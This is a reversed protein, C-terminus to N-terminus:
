NVAILFSELNNLPGADRIVPVTSRYSVDRVITEGHIEMPGVIRSNDVIVDSRVNVGNLLISGNKVKAGAFVHCGPGVWVDRDVDAHASVFGGVDGISIITGDFLQRESRAVFQHLEEGNKYMIVNSM